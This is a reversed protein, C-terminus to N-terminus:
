DIQSACVCLSSSLFCLFIHSISWMKISAISSFKWRFISEFHCNLFMWTYLWIPMFPKYDRFRSPKSSFDIWNIKIGILLLILCENLRKMCIRGIFYRFNSYNSSQSQFWMETRLTPWWDPMEKSKRAKWEFIQGNKHFNQAKRTKVWFKQGIESM